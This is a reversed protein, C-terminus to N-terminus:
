FGMALVRCFDRSLVTSFSDSICIYLCLRKEALPKMTTAMVAAARSVAYVVLICFFDGFGSVARENNATNPLNEDKEDTRQVNPKLKIVESM